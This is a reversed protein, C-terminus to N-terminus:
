GLLLWGVELGASVASSVRITFTNSTTNTTYWLRRTALDARPTLLVFSTSTVDLGPTVTVVTNGAEITAVGSAKDVRLRGSTRLAYGTTAQGYVGVGSTAVGNLGRGATTQGTVGRANGDQAAYGYVGTKGPSPPNTSGNPYSAGVVGTSNGGSRALVAAKDLAASNGVLGYSGTSTGEVGVGPSVGVVGTGSTSDSRGRVGCNTGTTAFAYGEVGTGAPNDVEGIFAVPKGFPDQNWILTGGATINGGGLVVDGDTGALAAEPRGLASAVTALGAGLAGALLARRSRPSATDIAM